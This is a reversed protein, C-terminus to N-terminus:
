SKSYTAVWDLLQAVQQHLAVKLGLYLVLSLALLAAGIWVVPISRSREVLSEEPRLGHPSLAEPMSLQQQLQRQVGEILDALAVEAGRVRYRGQFGFLLCLYFVRLVDIRDASARVRELEHFFGEGAVNEGFHVLQLPQASWHDRLPGPHQMAVEDALAALAYAMSRGDQEAYGAERAKRLVGDVYSKLRM